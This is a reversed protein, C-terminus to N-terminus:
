SAGIRWLYGRDFITNVTIEARLVNKDALSAPLVLGLLTAVDQAHSTLQEQMYLRANSIYIGEILALLIFFAGYTSFFLRKFLTMGNEQASKEIM